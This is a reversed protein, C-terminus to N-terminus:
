QKRRAPEAGLSSLVLAVVNPCTRVWSTLREGGLGVGRHVMGRQLLAREHAIGKSEHPEFRNSRQQQLEDGKGGGNMWAFTVVGVAGLYGGSTALLVCEALLLGFSARTRGLDVAAARRAGNTARGRRADHEIARGM